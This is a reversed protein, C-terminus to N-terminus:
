VNRGGKTAIKLPTNCSPYTVFFLWHILIHHHLYLNGPVCMCVCARVCARVRWQEEAYTFDRHGVAQKSSTRRADRQSWKATRVQLQKRLTQLTTTSPHHFIRVLRTADM